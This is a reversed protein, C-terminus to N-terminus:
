GIDQTGERVRPSGSPGSVDQMQVDAAVNGYPVNAVTGRTQYNRERNLRPIGDALGWGSYDSDARGGHSHSSLPTAVIEDTAQPTAAQGSVAHPSPGYSLSQRQSISSKWKSVLDDFTWNTIDERDILSKVITQSLYPLGSTHVSALQTKLQTHETQLQESRQEAQKRRTAEEAFARMLELKYTHIMREETMSNWEEFVRESHRFYKEYESRPTSDNGNMGSNHGSERHQEWQQDHENIRDWLAMTIDQLESRSPISLSWAKPSPHPDHSFLSAPPPLLRLCLGPYNQAFFEFDFLPPKQIQKAADHIIQLVEKLAMETAQAKRRDELEQFSLAKYASHASM